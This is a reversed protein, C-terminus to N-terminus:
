KVWKLLSAYRQLTAGGQELRCHLRDTALLNTHANQAIACVEKLTRLKGLGVLQM